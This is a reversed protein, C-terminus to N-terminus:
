SLPLEDFSFAGLRGADRAHNLALEARRLLEPPDIDSAAFDQVACYGAHLPTTFRDRGATSWSNSLVNRLRAVLGEVGSADTAPALIGFQWNGLYGIVDSRRAHERCVNGLYALIERSPESRSPTGNVATPEPMVAVCAFPEHRRTAMASLHTAWSQLGASTYLGTLPDILLEARLDQLERRARTFTRLKSCLADADLPQSCYDWAGSLYAKSRVVHAVPAPATMFIPIAHDFLPDDRLARCVESGSIDKLSDELLIADLNAQRSLELARRGSETRLVTYGDSELVIAVSRGIWDDTTAVLVLQSSPQPDLM